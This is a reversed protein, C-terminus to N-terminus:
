KEGSWYNRTVGLAADTDAPGDNESLYRENDERIACSLCLIRTRIGELDPDEGTFMDNQYVKQDCCDCLAPRSVARPAGHLHAGPAPSLMKAAEWAMAEAGHPTRAYVTTVEPGEEYNPHDAGHTADVLLHVPCAYIM